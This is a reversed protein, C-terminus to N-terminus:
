ATAEYEIRFVPVPHSIGKLAQEGLGETPFGLTEASSRVSESVLVAGEDGLDCIRRAINVALGFLDGRAAVPEGTNMGIRAHLPLADRSSRYAALDRQIKVAATVADNAETFAAMLGDGTHKVRRGGTAQLAADAIDDHVDILALGVDDGLEETLRTSNVIDTFLITRLGSDPRGDLTLAAGSPRTLEKGLFSGVLVPDVPIIDDPEMGNAARHVEICAEASPGEALCYVDGTEANHFFRWYRVGYREQAEEDRLHAAEIDELTLGEMNRHVDM